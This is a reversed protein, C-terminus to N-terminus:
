NALRMVVCRLKWAADRRTVTDSATSSSMTLRFCLYDAENESLTPVPGEFAERALDAESAGSVVVLELDGSPWEESFRDERRLPSVPRSVRARRRPEPQRRM